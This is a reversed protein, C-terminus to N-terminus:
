PKQKKIIYRGNQNTVSLHNLLAIDRLIKSLSDKKELKGIFYKQRLDEDAYQIEVNYLVSLQDFVDSLHQNNFMYWNALSDPRVPVNLVRNSAYAGGHKNRDLIAIHFNNKNYVLEEGPSLYYHKASDIGVMVRGELLRVRIQNSGKEATVEFVTGLVTTSLGESYVVFPMERNRAVSFLAQGDVRVERKDYRGFDKRYHITAGPSLEAKSSDPLRLLVKREGSNHRGIWVAALSTTQGPRSVGESGSRHWWWGAAAILLVSAAVSWRRIARLRGRSGPGAGLRRIIPKETNKRIVALMEEKYGAPLPREGEVQEYEEALTSADPHKQLYDWVLLAEEETCLGKLFKEILADSIAPM